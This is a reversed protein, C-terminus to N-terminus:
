NTKDHVITYKENLGFKNLLENVEKKLEIMAIERNVTLNQFRQMEEMKAILEKEANKRNSIDRAIGLVGILNGESDRMPTKYTELIETHGDNAFIIEEENIMVTNNTMTALDKERFFDATTKDIFDYDTKGLVDIEKTNFLSEIRHNCSLYVGNCDKLWVLDPLTQVLTRLQAEKKSLANEAQKRETIDHIISCLLTKNNSTIPSSYVEVDRIEGSALKHKFLFYLKHERKASEMELLVKDKPLINIDWINMSLIKQKDYGYFELAAKNADVIQGDDPNVIIKIALNLHFIQHFLEEDEKPQIKPLLQEETM